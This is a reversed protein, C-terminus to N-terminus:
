FLYCCNNRDLLFDISLSPQMSKKIEPRSVRVNRLRLHRQLKAGQGLGFAFLFNVNINDLALEFLGFPVLGLGNFQVVM